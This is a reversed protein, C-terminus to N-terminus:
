KTEAVFVGDWDEGPPAKEYVAIRATMLDYYTGLEWDAKALKRCRPLQARAAEWAQARYAALLQEQADVLAHFTPDALVAEGGLLAYIRAAGARGKVAVLDLELAAHGPARAKTGEGILKDVGYTKSQGELRSALNVPDGLVSYDFRRESGMNGVVCQGTNLGIGIRLAFPEQGNARAEAALEANLTALADDMALAADCAHSAHESDDLPANWFAMICDGMYKDICGHRELIADTMPTLFRNILRVLGEPDDEYRESIATFGRIDCFLFTMGRMEGGLALRDPDDALQEVVAPALYRSFANRVASRERRLEVALLFRELTAALLLAIAPILPDLLLGYAQFVGWSVVWLCATVGVAIAWPPAYPLRWRTAALLILGVFLCMSAEADVGWEPRELFTGALIQEVAQAHTEMGPVWRELPTLRLDHLGEAGTGVIVIADALQERPIRGALVDAASVYRARISGSDYLRMQAYRDTPVTHGGITLSAFGPRRTRAELAGNEAIVVIAAALSPVTRKGVKFLMPVRRTVGDPDARMDLAANAAAAEQLRPLSTVANSRRPVYRQDKRREFTVRPLNEIQPAEAAAGTTKKELTLGLVVPVRAMAAAMIGDNDPQAALAEADIPPVYGPLDAQLADFVQALARGDPEAFIVDFAVVRAEYDALTDILRAIRTRPWPWQGHADLSAEDIDVIRVNLAPDYNRPDLEVFRDWILERIMLIPLPELWSLCVGTAVGVLVVVLRAVRLPHAGAERLLLRIPVSASVTAPGQEPEAHM